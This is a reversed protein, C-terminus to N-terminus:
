RSATTCCDGTMSTRTISSARCCPGYCNAGARFVPFCKNPVPYSGLLRGPTATCVRGPVQALPRQPQVAPLRVRPADVGHLGPADHVARQSDEDVPLPEAFLVGARTLTTAPMPSSPNACGRVEGESGRGKTPSTPQSTTVETWHKRAKGKPNYAHFRFAPGSASSNLTHLSHRLLTAGPGPGGMRLGLGIHQLWVDACPDWPAAWRCRMWLNRCCTM